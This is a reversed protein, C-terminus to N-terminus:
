KEQHQKLKINEFLRKALILLVVLGVLINVISSTVGMQRQMSNAGVQMAAFGIAVGFVGLPKNCALLAILVATYGCDSSIGEILKKQIGLVEVVGAIGALGGSLVASIIINKMVSIGNCKAARQNMGVVKLEYGITTKQILIWVLIVAAIAIIFGINLRTPPMLLSFAAESEIRASQPVSGSPDMLFTRVALGTFNIAIYNLMITVIIESINFKAKFIAAILAWIGGSLFGAIIAILIRIPGPVQTFNLAVFTAAVAGMYFQGEAGINFFGTRFAVACGLGTFILPTAKVFIEFFGNINGFIGNIFKGMAEFPNVGALGLLLIGVIITILGIWLVSMYSKKEKM